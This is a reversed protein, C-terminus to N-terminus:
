MSPLRRPAPAVVALLLSSLCWWAQRGILSMSFIYVFVHTLLDYTNIFAMISFLAPFSAYQHLHLPCAFDRQPIVSPSLGSHFSSSVPGYSVRPSIYELFLFCFTRPGATSILKTHKFLSFFTVAEAEPINPTFYTHYSIIESSYAPGKEVTNAPVLRWQLTKLLLMFHAPFHFFIPFPPRLSCSIHNFHHFTNLILAFLLLFSISPWEFSSPLFTTCSFWYLRLVNCPEGNFVIIYAIKM